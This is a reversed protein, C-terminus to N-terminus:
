ECGAGEPQTACRLLQFMREFGRQDDRMVASIRRLHTELDATDPAGGAGPVVRDVELAVDLLVELPAHEGESSASSLNHMVRALVAEDDHRAAQALVFLNRSAAARSPALASQSGGQRVLTEVDSAFGGALAHMLAHTQPAAPLLQLGDYVGAILPRLSRSDGEGDTLLSRAYASLGATAEPKDHLADFFGLLTAVVPERLLTDLDADTRARLTALTGTAREKELQEGAYTLLASILPPGRRDAFRGDRTALLGEFLGGILARLGGARTPDRRQRDESALLAGVLQHAPAAYRLPERTGDFCRGNRWCVHLRGDRYALPPQLGAEGRRARDCAGEGAVVRRDGAAGACRAHPNLLQETLESTFDIGDGSGVVMADLAGLLPQAHFMLGLQREPTLQFAPDFLPGGDPGAQELAVMGDELADALLEEYRAIGTLRRYHPASEDRDQALPNGATDYHEALLKGLTSFPYRTDEFGRPDDGRKPDFDYRTVADTLSQMTDLFSLTRGDRLRLLQEWAFTTAGYYTDLRYRLPPHAPDAICCGGSPTPQSDDAVCEPLEKRAACVPPAGRVLLPDFMVFGEASASAFLVRSLAKADPRLARMDQESAFLRSDDLLFAILEGLTDVTRPLNKYLDRSM